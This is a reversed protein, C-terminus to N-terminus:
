RTAAARDFAAALQDVSATLKELEDGAPAPHAALFQEMKRSIASIEPFGYSGGSGALRHCHSKLSGAADPEGARLAALDKRLEALRVPAETLYEARLGELAKELEDTM